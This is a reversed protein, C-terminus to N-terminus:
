EERGVPLGDRLLQNRYSREHAEQRELWIAVALFVIADLLLILLLKRRM